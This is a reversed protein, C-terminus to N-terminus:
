PKNALIFKEEINYVDKITKLTEDSIGSVSLNEVPWRLYYCEADDWYNVPKGNENKNLTDFITQYLAPYKKSVHVQIFLHKGSNAENNGKKDRDMESSSSFLVIECNSDEFCYILQCHHFGILNVPNLCLRM